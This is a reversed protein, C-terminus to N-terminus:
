SLREKEEWWVELGGAPVRCVESHGGLVTALLATNGDVQNDRNIDAKVGIMAKLIELNGHKAALM